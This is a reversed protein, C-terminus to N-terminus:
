IYKNYKYVSCFADEPFFNDRYLWSTALINKESRFTGVFSDQSIKLTKEKASQSWHLTELRFQGSELQGACLRLKPNEQLLRYSLKHWTQLSVARSKSTCKPMHLCVQCFYDFDYSKFFTSYDIYCVLAPHSDFCGFISSDITRSGKVYCLFHRSM